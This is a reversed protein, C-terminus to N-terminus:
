GLCDHIYDVQVALGGDGTVLRCSIVQWPGPVLSQCLPICDGPSAECSAVLEDLYGGPVGADGGSVYGGDPGVTLPITAEQNPNPGTCRNTPTPCGGIFAAAFILVFMSATRRAGAVVAAITDHTAAPDASTAPFQM